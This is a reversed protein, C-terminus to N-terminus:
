RKVKSNSWKSYPKGCKNVVADYEEDTMGYIEIYDFIDCHLITIDDEDYIVSLNDNMDNPVNYIMVGYPFKEQLFNIIKDM